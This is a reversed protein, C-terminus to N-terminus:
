QIRFPLKFFFDVIYLLGAAGTISGLMLKLFHQPVFRQTKGACWAGLSGGAAAFFGWAFEPPLTSGAVLPVIVMYTFIGVASLAIVFPISAAVLVYMPLHYIAVFIPVLLFGGGVGLASAVVAVGFGCLFLLPTSMTWQEGWFGITLSRKGKALTEVRLGAPLGSPSLGAARQAAATLGFKGSPTM